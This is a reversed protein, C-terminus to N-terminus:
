GRRSAFTVGRGVRSAPFQGARRRVFQQGTGCVIADEMLKARQIVNRFLIKVALHPTWRRLRRTWVSGGRPLDLRCLACSMQTESPISLYDPAQNKPDNRDCSRRFASCKCLHAHTLHKSRSRRMQWDLLRTLEPGRSAPKPNVECIPEQSKCLFLSTLASQLINGETDRIHQFQIALGCTEIRDEADRPDEENWVHRFCHPFQPTEDSGTSFKSNRSPSWVNKLGGIALRQVLTPSTDASHVPVTRVERGPGFPITSGNTAPSNSRNKLRLPM